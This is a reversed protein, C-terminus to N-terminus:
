LHQLLQDLTACSALTLALIPVKTMLTCLWPKSWRAVSGAVTMDQGTYEAEGVAGM